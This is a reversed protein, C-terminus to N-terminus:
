GDNEAGKGTLPTCIPCYWRYNPLWYPNTGSTVEAHLPSGCGACARGWTSSVSVPLDAMM